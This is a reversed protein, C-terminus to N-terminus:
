GSGGCVWCGLSDVFECTDTADLITLMNIWMMVGETVTGTRVKCVVMFMKAVYADFGRRSTNQSPTWLTRKSTGYYLLGAKMMSLHGLTLTPYCCTSEHCRHQPVNSVVFLHLFKCYSYGKENLHVEKITSYGEFMLRDLVADVAHKMTKRPPRSKDDRTIQRLNKM